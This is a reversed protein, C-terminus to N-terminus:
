SRAGNSRHYHGERVKEFNNPRLLWELSLQFPERGAGNVKGCLFPSQAVYRFFASWWDISQRKPEERWRARLLAQRKEKWSKCPTAMPLEEHYAAVIEAHPVHPGNLNTTASRIPSLHVTPANFGQSQSQTASLTDSPMGSLAASDTDSLAKKRKAANAQFAGDQRAKRLKRMKELEAEVRSHHWFGDHVDFYPALAKRLKEWESLTASLTIRALQEDDDPLPGHLYHEFLLLLYGGHQDRSLKRTDALYDGIYLPFWVTAGM